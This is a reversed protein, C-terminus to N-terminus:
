DRAGNRLAARARRLFERETSFTLLTQADDLSAWFPTFEAADEPPRPFPETDDLTM